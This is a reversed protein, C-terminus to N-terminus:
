YKRRSRGSVATVIRPAVWALVSNFHEKLVALETRSWTPHYSANAPTTAPLNCGHFLKDYTKNLAAAKSKKLLAKEGFTRLMDDTFNWGEILTNCSKQSSARTVRLGALKTSFADLDMSAAGNWVITDRSKGVVRELDKRTKGVLLTGDPNTKFVDGTEAAVWLLIGKEDKWSFSYPFTLTASGQSSNGLRM